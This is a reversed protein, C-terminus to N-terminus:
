FLAKHLVKLIKDANNQNVILTVNNFSTGISVTYIKYGSLSTFVSALFIPDHTINNGIICIKAVNDYNELQAIKELSKKLQSTYDDRHITLTFSIESTACVDIPVDHQTCIESCKQIFGVGDLMDVNTLHLLTQNKDAVIGRLGYKGNKIIETGRASRNFTNKIRVHIDNNLAPIVMKPHLVKAGGYAMEAMVSVDIESWIKPNKILRPDASMIGDVDTWIEISDAGLSVAAISATYDSGGRGLLTTDGSTDKGVFGDIVPVIGKKLLPAVIRKFNIKTRQFDVEAEKYHSDTRVLRIAPVRRALSGSHIIAYYMIRSSLREGFSCIVAYSKDALEGV